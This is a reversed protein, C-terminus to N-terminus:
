IYTNMDVNPIPLTNLFLKTKSDNNVTRLLCIVRNAQTWGMNVRKVPYSYVTCYTPQKVEHAKCEPRSGFKWHHNQTITKKWQAVKYWVMGLTYFSLLGMATKTCPTWPEASVQSLMVTLKLLSRACNLAVCTHLLASLCGTLNWRDASVMSVSALDRSPQTSFRHQHLRHHKRCKWTINHEAPKM